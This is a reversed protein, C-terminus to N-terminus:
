AIGLRQAIQQKHQELARSYQSNLENEVRVWEEKFQSQMTPDIQGGANQLEPQRALMQEYQQRVQQELQGLLQERHQRYGETIRTIERAMATVEGEGELALIGGLAQEIREQQVEDRALFINRLFTEAAGRFVATQSEKPQQGIAELLDNINGELYDVAVDIGKKRAQEFQLEESSAKGIRDAREMVLDITSKIETM